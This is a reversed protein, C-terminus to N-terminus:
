RDAWDEGRRRRRSRRRREKEEGEIEKLDGNRVMGKREIKARRQEGMGDRGESRKREGGARRTLESGEKQCGQRYDSLRISIFQERYIKNENLNYALLQTCIIALSGFIFLSVENWWTDFIAALTLCVVGSSWNQVLIRGICDEVYSDESLNECVIRGISKELYSKELISNGTVGAKPM